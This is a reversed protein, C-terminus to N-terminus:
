FNRRQYSQKQHGEMKLVHAYLEGMESNENIKSTQETLAWIGNVTCHVRLTMIIQNEYKYATCSYKRSKKQVGRNPEKLEANYEQFVWALKRKNIYKYKDYCSILLIKELVRRCEETKPKLQSSWQGQRGRRSQARIQM